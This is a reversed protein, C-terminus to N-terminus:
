GLWATVVEFVFHVIVHTIVVVGGEQRSARTDYWISVRGLVAATSRRGDPGNVGSSVPTDSAEDPSAPWPLCQSAYRPDPFGPRGPRFVEV